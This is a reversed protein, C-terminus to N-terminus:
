VKVSQKELRQMLEKDNSLKEQIIKIVVERKDKLSYIEKQIGLYRSLKNSIDIQIKVM